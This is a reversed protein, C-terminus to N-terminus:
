ASAIKSLLPILWCSQDMFAASERTITCDGSPEMEDPPLMDHPVDGAQDAGDVSADADQDGNLGVGSECACGAALLALIPLLGYM